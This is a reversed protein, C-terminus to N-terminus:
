EHSVRQNFYYNKQFNKLLILKQYLFPAIHFNKSLILIKQLMSKNKSKRKSLLFM